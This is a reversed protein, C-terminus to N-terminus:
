LHLSAGRGNVARKGDVPEGLGGIVRGMLEMGVKIELPAGAAIVKTGPSIRDVDGIPMLLIKKGKFGVVEAPVLTQANDLQIYCLDGIPVAPGHSEIVLGAVHAVRGVHRVHPVAHLKKIGNLIM